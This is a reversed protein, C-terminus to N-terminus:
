SNWSLIWIKWWYSPGKPPFHTPEVTKCYLFIVSLFRV